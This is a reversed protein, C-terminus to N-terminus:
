SYCAGPACYTGTECLRGQRFDSAPHARGACPRVVAPKRHKYRWIRNNDTIIPLNCTTSTSLSSFLHVQDGVEVNQAVEIRRNARTRRRRAFTVDIQLRVSALHVYGIRFDAGRHKLLITVAKRIIRPLGVDHQEIGAGDALIGLLFDTAPEPLHASLLALVIRAKPETHQATHGLPQARLQQVLFLEDIEDDPGISISIQGPEEVFSFFGALGRHVYLKGPLLCIRVDRGDPVIRVPDRCEDRDHAPAVVHAREAHHRKRASPLAAPGGFADHPLDLLENFLPVALDREETLIDIRISVFLFSAGNSERVENVSNAQDRRLEPD